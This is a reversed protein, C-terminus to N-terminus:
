TRDETAPLPADIVKGPNLIGKPDLAAKIRAMLALEEPSRSYSLYPKKTLGIGHEASISGGFDRIIEYVVKSIEAQPQAADGPVWALLHLNGDGIHGYYCSLCGPVDRALRTRCAQAYEDMRGVSMSVDYAMHPGLLAKFEAAADRTAWFAKVDSLSQSMAGDEIVGQEFLAELFKEFRAGDIGEDTGQSEILVYFAHEGALPSRVGEARMAINWYDPWMVEFASLNPGLGRRAATLMNLVADYSAAGLVAAHTAGPLPHLKLVLRTIIGLTGEAGIFLQKLDYGTNNKMMKNLNTLVTGDPLVVEMGLVLDRAMGYRIVRNGGANTSVNGGIACSGRAGLDLSFYLGREEAAKQIVELPTGAWVTMTSAAEDVDIVGTMRELSLAVGGEIPRAGGSLGTLGGQPVVVTGTTHAATMIAAVDETTRPRFLAVPSQPDLSSWDNRNREPVPDLALAQLAPDLRAM